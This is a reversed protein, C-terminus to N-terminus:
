ESAIYGLAEWLVSSIGTPDLLALLVLQMSNLLATSLIRNGSHGHILHSIEHGLVMALEEDNPKFEELLGKCVFIRKPFTESVFANQLPSDLVVVRWAGLMAQHSDRLGDIKDLGAQKESGAPIGSVAAADYSEGFAAKFEKKAAEVQSETYKQAAPLLRQVVRTVRAVEKSSAPLVGKAGTGVM